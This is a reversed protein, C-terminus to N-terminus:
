SLRHVTISHAGNAKKERGRSVRFFNHPHNSEINYRVATALQSPTLTKSVVEFHEGPEIRLLFKWAITHDNVTFEPGANGKDSDYEEVRWCRVGVQGNETVTRIVFCRRGTIVHARYRDVAARVARDLGQLTEPSEPAVFFSYGVKMEAFPYRRKVKPRYVPVNKITVPMFM